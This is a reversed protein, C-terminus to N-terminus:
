FFSSQQPLVNLHSLVKAALSKMDSRGKQTIEVLSMQASTGYKLKLEIMRFLRELAKLAKEQLIISSSSLLKIIPAIANAEALLKSGNQLQEGEIITLIADLSAEAAAPDPEYLVEALPRLANAELLCFSSEVSCFGLHVPCNQTPSAICCSLMWNKRAPLKSLKQSSESFQKLSTAASKKTLCSGSALLSVLLPIIGTEAVQTQIEPNTPVTFRCLAGAANEVIENRLSAHANRGRLRDLIVDLAGADLLHQSMSFDQPLHSIIGLAAAIEEENDSTRIIRVLNGICTNNVHELLIDDNGDKALLYFLKVADARVDRDDLECLYVLVKIASIQRLKTRIDSGAPSQCMAQFIRLISQQVNSGTLSILSFLKFIDDHSELLSVQVDESGESNKSIALQMITAAVNERIETTLTHCFLLEFLLDSVGEKIMLQGNKPVTSLSQLAKVAIIKMETNSHSLLELLPKLAGKETLHLKIQDSLQIDSLTKAMIILKSETGSCLHQLLPAGYNLRAMEIVNQDLFSLSELIERAYKAAVSDESNMFTVLLLICGQVNGILNQVISSRSLELLLQLALISEEPKRALSRVVLGIANDVTGIREKGEESDKALAYLIMLAYKRIETNNARLLDITVPVYNEMVIWERQLESRVCLELLKQLSQLVEEENNTQIKLKLSAITIMINRNKWEEISQRLTKNSRLDSKKLHKKTLPCLKNGDALWKEIAIREFIQGSSTEVPDEMVDGTIPCYFSQLPELPQRGLSNRKTLYNTQKEEATTLLDAKGLLLIIEEMRLTETLNKGQESSAIEAKFNGFERKLVSQENAIGVARAICILLDNAYSRDINREQIGSEIKESVEEEEKSVEYETDLMNKCLDKLQDTIEPLVNLHESTILLLTRSIDRTSSEFYKVIRRCNLLLYIKNRNRCDLALQKIVEIELKLDEFAPSLNNIESTESKSLEKLVLAIKELFKSFKSFNEKQVVVSNTAEITEFVLRTIETVVESAPVLFVDNSPDEPM